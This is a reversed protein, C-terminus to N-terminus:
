SLTSHLSCTRFTLVLEVFSSVLKTKLGRRARMASLSAGPVNENVARLVKQATEGVAKKEVRFANNFSLRLSQM